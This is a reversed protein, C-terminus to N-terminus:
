EYKTLGIDYEGIAPHYFAVSFKGVDGYFVHIDEADKYSAGAEIDDGYFDLAGQIADNIQKQTINEKDIFEKETLMRKAKVDYIFIEPTVKTVENTCLNKVDRLVCASIYKEDSNRKIFSFVNVSHNYIDKVNECEKKDVNSKEVQDYYKQTNANIKDIADNVEKINSDFDLWHFYQPNDVLCGEAKKCMEVKKIEKIRFSKKRTTHAFIIVGTLVLLASLVIVVCIILKKKDVNKM